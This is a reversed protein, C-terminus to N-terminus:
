DFNQLTCTENISIIPNCIISRPCISSHIKSATRAARHTRLNTAVGRKNWFTKYNWFKSLLSSISISLFDSVKDLMFEHAVWLIEGMKRSEMSWMIELFVSACYEAKESWLNFKEIKELLKLIEFEYFLLLFCLLKQMSLMNNETFIKVCTEKVYIFSLLYIQLNLCIKTTNWVRIQQVNKNSSKHQLAVKIKISFMVVLSWIFFQFFKKWFIQPFSNTLNFIKLQFWYFFIRSVFPL